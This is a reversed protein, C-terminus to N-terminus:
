ANQDRGCTMADQPVEDGRVFYISSCPRHLSQWRSLLPIHRSDLILVSALYLVNLLSGVVQFRLSLETLDESKVLADPM